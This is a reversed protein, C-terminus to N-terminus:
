LNLHRVVKDFRRILDQRFPALNDDEITDVLLRECENGLETPCRFTYHNKVAYDAGVYLTPAVGSHVIELPYHNFAIAVNSIKMFSKSFLGQRTIRRSRMRHSSMHLRHSKGVNEEKELNDFYFANRISLGTVNDPSKSAHSLYLDIMERWNSTRLPVVLEDLDVLLAYTHSTIHRLLCDNYPILENRRKQQRNRQIFATRQAPLNPQNGPLSIAIHEFTHNGLSSYYDLAKQMNPHINYSYALIKDAGLIYNAEMWEILRLSNDEPYDLGKLCVVTHRPQGTHRGHSIKLLNSVASVCQSCEISVYYFNETYSSSLACTFLYPVYFGPRPDWSSRWIAKTKAAVVLPTQSLDKWLYCYLPIQLYDKVMALVSVVVGVNPYFNPYRSDAYATFLYVEESCSSIRQWQYGSFAASDLSRSARYPCYLPEEVSVCQGQLACASTMLNSSDDKPIQMQQFIKFVVGILRQYRAEYRGNRARENFLCYCLFACLVCFDVM